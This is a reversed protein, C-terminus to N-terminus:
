SHVRLRMGDFKTYYQKLPYRSQGSIVGGDLINFLTGCQECRLTIGDKEVAVRPENEDDWDYPCARDFATFDWANLRYVVVGNIGGTFYMHGGYYNLDIYSVDNPFVWFNVPVKPFNPHKYGECGLLLFCIIGLFTRAFHKM